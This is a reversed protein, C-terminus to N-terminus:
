KQVPGESAATLNMIYDVLPGIRVHPHRFLEILTHMSLDRARYNLQSVKNLLIPIFIRMANNIMKPTVKHDCIPPAM